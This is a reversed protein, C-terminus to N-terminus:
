EHPASSDGPPLLNPAFKARIADGAAMAGASFTDSHSGLPGDMADDCVKACEEAFLAALRCIASRPVLYAAEEGSVIRNPAVVGAERALREILDKDM